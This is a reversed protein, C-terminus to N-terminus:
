SGKWAKLFLRIIALAPLSLFGADLVADNSHRRRGCRERRQGAKSRHDSFGRKKRGEYVDSCRYGFYFFPQMQLIEARARTRNESCVLEKAKTILWDPGASSRWKSALANTFGFSAIRAPCVSQLESRCRGISIGTERFQWCAHSNRRGIGSSSLIEATDPEKQMIV